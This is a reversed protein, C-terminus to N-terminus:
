RIAILQYDHLYWDEKKYIPLKKKLNVIEIELQPGLSKSKKLNKREIYLISKGNKFHSEENVL